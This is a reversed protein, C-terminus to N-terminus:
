LWKKRKFFLFMGAGVACMMAVILWFDHPAGIIPMFKTDMAFLEAIFSLPLMFLAIVTLAKMTENQKTSLLSNNTERLEHLSDTARMIHNHVRYYENSLARLYPSFEEGFFGPGSEELTRLTERHPEIIQRLNLLARSSRSIAAVMEIEQEGFIREEIIGLERRIFEIEHEISRYLKRVTYFFLFGGHGGLPSTELIANVEFVKSFKHLPDIAEYHTTILFNHGIVFDVEQERARHSHKLAPFHMVIYAYKEYMEARPKSSPLILEEAIHGDIGFEEAVQRVELASPSELDVWVIGGYEHRTHM